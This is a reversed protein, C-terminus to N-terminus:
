QVPIQETQPESGTAPETITVPVPANVIPQVPADNGTDIPGTDIPPVAGPTHVAIDPPMVMRPKRKPLSSVAGEGVKAAKANVKSIKEVSAKAPGAKAPSAKVPSSVEPPAAQGSEAPPVAGMSSPLQPVVVAEAVPPSLPEAQQELNATLGVVAAALLFIIAGLWRLKTQKRQHIKKVRAKGLMTNTVEVASMDTYKFGRRIERDALLPQAPFDQQAFKKQPKSM